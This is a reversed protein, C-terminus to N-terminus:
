IAKLEATALCSPNIAWPSPMKGAFLAFTEGGEWTVPCPSWLRRVGTSMAEGQSLLGKLIEWGHLWIVSKLSEQLSTRLSGSLLFHCAWFWQGWGLLSLHCLTQGPQLQLLTRILLARSRPQQPTVSLKPCSTTLLASSPLSASFDQKGVQVVETILCMLFGWRSQLGMELFGFGPEQLTSSAKSHLQLSSSSHLGKRRKLTFSRQPNLVPKSCDLIKAATPQPKHIPCKQCPSPPPPPPSTTRSGKGWHLSDENHAFM